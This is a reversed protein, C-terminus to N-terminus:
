YGPYSPRVHRFRDSGLMIGGFWRSVVIVVNEAAM